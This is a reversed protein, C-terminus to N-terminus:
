PFSHQRPLFCALQLSSLIAKHHVTQVLTRGQARPSPSLVLDHNWSDSPAPAAQVRRPAAYNRVSTLPVTIMVKCIYLPPESLNLAKGVTVCSALIGEPSSSWLRM